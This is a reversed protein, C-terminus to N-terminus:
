CNGGCCCGSNNSPKCNTNCATKDACCGTNNPKQNLIAEKIDSEDFSNLQVPIGNIVLTPSSMIGLEAMRKVETSYEVEADINEEKVIKVVTEHLKKCTPCGSGLVEIKM